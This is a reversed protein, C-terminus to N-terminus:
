LTQKRGLNKPPQDPTIVAARISGRGLSKAKDGEKFCPEGTVKSYSRTVVKM